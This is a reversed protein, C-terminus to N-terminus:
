EDPRNLIKVRPIFHKKEKDLRKKEKIRDELTVGRFNYDSRQLSFYWDSEDLKIKELDVEIFFRVLWKKMPRYFRLSLVLFLKKINGWMGKEHQNRIRSILIDFVRGIEQRPSQKLKEIDIEPLVDQLKLRHPLDINFILCILNRLRFAHRQIKDDKIEGIFITLVRWIERIAPVYRKDNVILHKQVPKLYVSRLYFGVLGTMIKKILWNPLLLFIGFLLKVLKTRTSRPGATEITMVNVLLRKPFTLLDILSQKNTGKYLYSCGIFKIFVGGEPPEIIREIVGDNIDGPTMGFAGTMVKARTIVEKKIKDAPKQM